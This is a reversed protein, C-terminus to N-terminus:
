TSRDLDSHASVGGSRGRRGGKISKYNYETSMIPVFGPNLRCERSQAQIAVQIAMLNGSFSQHFVV